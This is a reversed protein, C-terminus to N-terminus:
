SHVLYFFAHEGQLIGKKVEPPLNMKSLNVAKIRAHEKELFQEVDVYRWM